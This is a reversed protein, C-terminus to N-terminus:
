ILVIRQRDFGAFSDWEDYLYGAGIRRYNQGSGDVPELILVNCFRTIMDRRSGHFSVDELMVELAYVMRSLAPQRRDLKCIGVGPTQLNFRRRHQFLVKM